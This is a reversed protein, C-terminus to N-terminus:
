IIIVYALTSALNAICDAVCSKVGEARVNAAALNDSAAHCEEPNEGAESPRRGFSAELLPNGDPGAKLPGLRPLLM